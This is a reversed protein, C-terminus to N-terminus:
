ARMEAGLALILQPNTGAGTPVTAIPVLTREHFSAGRHAIVMVPTHNAKRSLPNSKGCCNM